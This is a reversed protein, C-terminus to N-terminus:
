ETVLTALYGDMHKIMGKFMQPLEKVVSDQVDTRALCNKSWAQLKPLNELFIMGCIKNLLDLRMFLPAYAADILHFENDNFFDQGSHADELRGLKTLMDAKADEYAKADKARIMKLPGELVEGAFAIWARNQAKLLVDEPHLSPPTVEDIYEQIVSSEFVVKDGVKLIPVQGLPSLKKFWEPPNSIDIHTIDVDIKKNKLIIVARQVFPCLKFSILEMKQSM